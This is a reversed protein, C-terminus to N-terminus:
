THAQERWLKNAELDIGNKILTKYLGEFSTAQSITTELSAGDALQRILDDGKGVCLTIVGKLEELPYMGQKTWAPKVILIPSPLAHILLRKGFSVDVQNSQNSTLRYTWKNGTSDFAVDQDSPRIHGFPTPKCLDAETPIITVTRNTSVIILPYTPQTM